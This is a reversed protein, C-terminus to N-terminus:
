AINYPSHRKNSVSLSPNVGHTSQYAPVTYAYMSPHVYQSSYYPAYMRSADTYGFSNQHYAAYNQCYPYNILSSQHQLPPRVNEDNPLQQCATSGHATAQQQQQETQFHHNNNDKSQNSTQVNQQQYGHNYPSQNHISSNHRLTQNHNTRTFSFSNTTTTTPPLNNAM